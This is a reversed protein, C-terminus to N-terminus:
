EDSLYWADAQTLGKMADFSVQVKLCMVQADPTDVLM